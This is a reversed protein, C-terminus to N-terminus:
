ESPSGYGGGGGSRITLTSGAPLEIATGRVLEQAEQGPREILVDSGKGADGGQVGWPQLHSRVLGLNLSAPVSIDYVRETGMGGSFKGKGGSGRRLRYSRVRLPMAREEFEVPTTYTDGHCISKLGSRGPGTPTAGWGGTITDIQYFSRGNVPDTGYLAFGGLEGHHAASVHGPVLKGMASLVADVATPLPASWQALPAGALCSLFTGEPVRIDLARFAGEDAARDPLTLIKYAIKAAVAAGFRSNIPQALQQSTGEFDVVIRGTAEKTVTVEIIPPLGGSETPDLSASARATGVDWNAVKAAALLESADWIDEIARELEERSYRCRLALYREELIGTAAVQARLDGLVAEPYRVNVEVVNLVESEYFGERVIRVCPLQIGEQYVDTTDSVWGGAARGGVDVWHVRMVAIAELIGDVFVPRMAAVNNLHQGCVAAENTLYVDGPRLDNRRREMLSRVPAELDGLFIPIGGIGQAISQADPTLIATCFDRIEYVIPSFATECINTEAEQLMSQLSCRIVEADIADMTM